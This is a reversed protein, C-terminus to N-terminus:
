STGSGSSGAWTSHQWPQRFGLAGLAWENVSSPPLPPCLKKDQFALSLLQSLLGSCLLPAQSSVPLGACLWPPSFPDSAALLPLTGVSSYIVVSLRKSAGSSNIEGSKELKNFLNSQKEFAGRYRRKSRWERGWPQPQWPGGPPEPSPWTKPCCRTHIAKMSLRTSTSLRCCPM